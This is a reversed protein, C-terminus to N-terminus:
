GQSAPQQKKVRGSLIMGAGCGRCNYVRGSINVRASVQYRSWVGRPTDWRGTITYSGIERGHWDQVAGSAGLADGCNNPLYCACYEPTVMAGGAEFERGEFSVVCGTEAAADGSVSPIWGERASLQQITQM